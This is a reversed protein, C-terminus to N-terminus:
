QSRSTVRSSAGKVIVAVSYDGIRAGGEDRMERRKKAEGQEKGRDLRVKRKTKKTQENAWRTQVPELWDDTRHTLDLVIKREEDADSLVSSCSLFTQKRQSSFPFNIYPVFFRLLSSFDTFFSFSEHHAVFRRIKTCRRRVSVNKRANELPFSPTLAPDATSRTPLLEVQAAPRRLFTM